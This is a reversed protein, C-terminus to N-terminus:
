IDNSLRKNFEISTQPCLTVHTNLKLFDNLYKVDQAISHCKEENKLIKDLNYGEVYAKKGSFGYNYFDFGTVYVNKFMSSLSYIAITGMYPVYPKIKNSLYIFDNQVDLAHIKNKKFFMSDVSLKTFITLNGIKSPCKKYFDSSKKNLFLMDTKFNVDAELIKNIRAVYDYRELLEDLITFNPAPGVLIVSKTDLQKNKM